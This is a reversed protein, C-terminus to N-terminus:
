HDTKSFPVTVRWLGGSHGGRASNGANTGTHRSTCKGYLPNRCVCCSEECRQIGPSALEVPVLTLLTVLDSVARALQLMTAGDSYLGLKFKLFKQKYVSGCTSYRMVYDNRINESHM